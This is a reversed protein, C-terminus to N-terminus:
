CNLGENEYGLWMFESKVEISNWRKVAHCGLNQSPSDCFPTTPDGNYM